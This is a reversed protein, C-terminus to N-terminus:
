FNLIDKLQNYIDDISSIIETKKENNIDINEYLNLTLFISSLMRMIFLKDNEEDESIPQFDNLKMNLFDIKGQYFLIEEKTM